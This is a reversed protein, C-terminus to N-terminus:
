EACLQVAYQVIQDRSPLVLRSAPGLPTYTDAGTLRAVRPMPDCSEVIATIIPESMGGTRRCEDVILARGCTSAQEAIFQVNLPNLWRLDVVRAKIGHEDQLVKVAQRAYYVGNGYTIIALDSHEGHHVRGEGIPVFSEVPPYDTLWGGDGAEHLDKAMYLAIPELFAVVRGDTNALAACTRLMQAADDGMSPTAIVLGPIDRLAAISNDNHFHGGFGKQYGYSGVRVVMPNRFQGNSFFQLSCAEGRLQDEANHYYALYQIEPFPLMGMSGFGQALGLITTEDLLTNFVRGSGFTKWLNATVNYVGGKQAVDEGFVVVHEYKVMLDILARNIQAALHKPASKEPLRNEGGYAKVRLDRAVVVKADDGVAEAHYPALPEVIEELTTIKPLTVVEDAYGRVCDRMTEYRDRLDGVTAVGSELMIRATAIIPDKAETAEIHELTLYEAEQDTGAHGLMRVVGLRLFTPARFRRCYDVAELAVKHADVIDLGDADFYKLGPRESFNAEIWGGATKVSIGIGNDECVFLIPTPLRQFAANCATNFAGQATSHNSSADGFTCVVISDEPIELDIHRRKARELAIAAGVAKPLHSAITSTQPPIWLAKSGWVKHRGGSIPDDRSVVMSLVTDRVMDPYGGVRARQMVFAGSRYHLYAPDTHRTAAGVAVNGEHGTSGITYYSKDETRLIRAIFDLHRAAIQSEFFELIEHGTLPFGDRVFDSLDRGPVVREGVVGEEDGWGDLFRLFNDDVLKARNFVSM